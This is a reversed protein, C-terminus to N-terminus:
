VHAAPNWSISQFPRQRLTSDRDLNQRLLWSDFIHDRMAASAAAVDSAVIADFVRQHAHFSLERQAQNMRGRYRPAFEVQRSLTRIIAAGVPNGSARMVANHFAGDAQAFEGPSRIDMLSLAGAMESLDETTRSLAAEGAVQSEIIVRLAVVHDILSGGQDHEVAARLVSSDLFDWDTPGLVTSGQGQRVRILGKGELVRLSERVVTRSVGFSDCLSPETPLLQGEAIEGAVISDILQEVITVAM